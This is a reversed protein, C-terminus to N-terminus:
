AFADQAAATDEFFQYHTIKGDTVECRLAWDSEFVRGTAPIRHRLHGFAFALSGDEVIDEVAFAETEVNSALGTFFDQAGSQGQYTGYWPVKSAHEPNGAKVTINEALVSLIGDMNGAGFAEFLRHVPVTADSDSTPM